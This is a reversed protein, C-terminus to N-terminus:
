EPFTVGIHTSQMWKDDVVAHLLAEATILIARGWRTDWIERGAPTATIWREVSALDPDPYWDRYSADFEVVRCGQDYYSVIAPAENGWVASLCPGHQALTPLHGSTFYDVNYDMIITGNGLHGILMDIDDSQFRMPKTSEPSIGYAALVDTTTASCWTLHLVDATHLRFWDSYNQDIM